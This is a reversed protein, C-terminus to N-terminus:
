LLVIVLLFFVPNDLIVTIKGVTRREAVAELSDLALADVSKAKKIIKDLRNAELRSWGQNKRVLM